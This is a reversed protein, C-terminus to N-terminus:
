YSWMMEHAILHKKIAWVTRLIPRNQSKANTDQQESGINVQMTIESVLVFINYLIM